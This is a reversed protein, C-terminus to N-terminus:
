KMYRQEFWTKFLQFGVRDDNNWIIRQLAQLNHPCGNEVAWELIHPHKHRAAEIVVLEDWKCGNAILWKLADLQGYTAATACNRWNMPVNHKKLLEMVGISSRQAAKSYFSWHKPELLNTHNIFWEVCEVHGYEIATLAVSVGLVLQLSQQYLSWKLIHLHGGKAANNLLRGELHTSGADTLHYAKHNIGWLILDLYGHLACQLWFWDHERLRKEYKKNHAARVLHWDTQNLRKLILRIVDKQPIREKLNLVNPGIDTCARKGVREM